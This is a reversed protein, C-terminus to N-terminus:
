VCRHLLHAGVKDKDEKENGLGKRFKKGVESISEILKIIVFQESDDVTAKLGDALQNQLPERNPLLESGGSNSLHDTWLPHKKKQPRNM